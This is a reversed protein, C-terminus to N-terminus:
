VVDIRDGETGRSAAWKEPTWDPTARNALGRKLIWQRSNLPEGEDTAPQQDVLGGTLRGMKVEDEPRSFYVLSYRVSEGQAGPPNVVRHINSRLLGATFKVMADGLNVIAFGPVPRVYVWEREGPLQVQLGGLWNFLITLSGFDTHPAGSQGPGPPSRIFRVHDGSRQTLRHLDVLTGPPLGLSTTYHTLMMNILSHANRAFSSFLPLHDKILQPAPLPTCNGVIDDKKLNYAEHRDRTGLKDMVLTGMRKYGYFGDSEPINDRDAIAKESDPLSFFDKELQLLAQADEYLEEGEPCGLLSLYFFGLNKGAQFLAAAEAPDNALLRSLSITVLPATKLDEPFPPIDTFTPVPM